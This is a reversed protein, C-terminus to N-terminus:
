YPAIVTTAAGSQHLKACLSPLAAWPPNCYNAERQWAADRLHLCDVDECKPDRWKANFRPLLTNEMSTFRDISRPGREAQLYSFIRPNLQWDDRDLERSLKDAWINAAYRIHGLRISIDNLDLLYLLRRLETMMVPSRTTLKHLTAVVATNDEHLLVNRGRLKPLFSETALRV